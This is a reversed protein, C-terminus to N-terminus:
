INSLRRNYRESSLFIDEGRIVGQVMVQQAGGIMAKLKSLPAIVEPDIGANPNDGVLATTPGFALGGEALAPLPQAKILSVQKLAMGGILASAVINFPFPVSSLTQIISQAAGMVAQFINFKKDDIAKQRQLM